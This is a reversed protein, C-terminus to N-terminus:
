SRIEINRFVHCKIILKHRSKLLKKRDSLRCEKGDTALPISEITNTKVRPRQNKTLSTHSVFDLNSAEM